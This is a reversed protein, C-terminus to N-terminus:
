DITIDLLDSTGNSKKAASQQTAIMGNGTGLGSSFILPYRSVTHSSLYVCSFFNIIKILKRLRYQGYPNQEKNKLFNFSFKMDFMSMLIEVQYTLIEELNYFIGM